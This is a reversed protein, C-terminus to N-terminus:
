RTVNLAEGPSIVQVAIDPALRGVRAVEAEADARVRAAEEALERRARATEERARRAEAEAAERGRHAAEAAEVATLM